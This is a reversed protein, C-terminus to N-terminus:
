LRSKRLLPCCLRVITPSWVDVQLMGAKAWHSGRSFLQEMSVSILRLTMFVNQAPRCGTMLNSDEWIRCLILDSVASVPAVCGATEKGGCAASHTIGQSSLRIAPGGGPWKATMVASQCRPSIQAEAWARQCGSRGSGCRTQWVSLTRQSLKVGHWACRCPADAEWHAQTYLKYSMYM